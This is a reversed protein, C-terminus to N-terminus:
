NNKRSRGHTFCNIFSQNGYSDQEFNSIASQRSMDDENIPKLLSEFDDSQISASGTVVPVPFTEDVNAIVQKTIEIEKAQRQQSVLLKKITCYAAQVEESMVRRDLQDLAVELAKILPMERYNEAKKLIKTLQEIGDETKGWRAQVQVPDAWEPYQTYVNELSGSGNSEVYNELIFILEGQEPTIKMSCLISPGAIQAIEKFLRFLEDM